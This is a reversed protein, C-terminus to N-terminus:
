GRQFLDTVEQEGEIQTELEENDVEELLFQFEGIHLKEEKAIDLLVEKLKFNDTIGALRNYLTIASQEASIAIRLIDSDSTEDTDLETTSSLISEKIFNGNSWNSCIKGLERLFGKAEKNGENASRVLSGIISGLAKRQDINGFDENVLREIQSKVKEAKEEPTMKQFAETIPKYRKM